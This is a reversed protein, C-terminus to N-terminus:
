GRTIAIINSAIAEFSSKINEKAEIFPPKAAKAVEKFITDYFIYGIYLLQISLYKKTMEIFRKGIIIDNEGKIMNLVLFVKKNFLWQKIQKVEEPFDISMKSIMEGLTSFGQMKKPDSFNNIYNLAEKKESLLRSLGRILSNKLFSYANEISMPLCDTVIIGYPFYAFFDIVNFSSGAALDILIFDAKLTNLKAILKKKQGFKPNAIELVDSAGSILYSNSIETPILIEELTRVRGSIFDDLGKPPRRIGLLTHLNAGGLDADVFIVTYGKKCLCTGLYATITSKGVGGKGGGVSIIVPNIM